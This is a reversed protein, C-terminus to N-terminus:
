QKNDYCIFQSPKQNRLSKEVIIIFFIGKGCLHHKVFLWFIIISFYCSRNEGENKKMSINKTIKKQLMSLGSIFVIEPQQLGFRKGFKNM